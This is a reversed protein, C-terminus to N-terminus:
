SSLNPKGNVSQKLASFSIRIDELSLQAAISIQNLEENLNLIEKPYKERALKRVYELLSGHQNDKIASLKTLVDLNFGDAQGKATGGNLYNGLSVVVGFLKGLTTSNRVQNIATKIQLLPVQADNQLEQFELKFSWLNLRAELDVLSHLGM